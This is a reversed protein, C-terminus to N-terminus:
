CLLCPVTVSVAACFTAVFIILLAGNANDLAGWDGMQTSMALGAFATCACSVALKALTLLLREGATLM